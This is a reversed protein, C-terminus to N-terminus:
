RRSYALRKPRSAWRRWLWRRIWLILTHLAIAVGLGILSRWIAVRAYRPQREEQARALASRLLPAWEEAQEQHTVGRMFDSDTVTLLHRNNLRITTLADQEAISVRILQDLPTSEIAAQLDQNVSNARREATFGDVSGLRFLVRGDVVVDATPSPETFADQAFGPAPFLGFGPLFCLLAALAFLLCARSLIQRATAYANSFPTSRKWHRRVQHRRVQM